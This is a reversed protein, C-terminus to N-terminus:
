KRGRFQRDAFNLMWNWDYGSIGHNRPRWLEFVGAYAFTKQDYPPKEQWDPDPSVECYCATMVAYDNTVAPPMAASVFAGLTAALFAGARNLKSMVCNGEEKMGRDTM